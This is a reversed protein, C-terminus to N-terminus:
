THAHEYKPDATWASGKSFQSNANPLMSGAATNPRTIGNSVRQGVIPKKWNSPKMCTRVPANGTRILKELETREESTLEIHTHKGMDCLIVDWALFYFIKGSLASTSGRKRSGAYVAAIEERTKAVEILDGEARYLDLAQTYYELAKRKEGLQFYVWGIHHLTDAVGRGRKTAQYISRARGSYEAALRHNGLKQYLVGMWLFCQAVRTRDDLTHYLRAAKKFKAIAQRITDEKKQTALRLAENWARDAASRTQDREAIFLVTVALTVGVALIVWWKGVGNGWRM